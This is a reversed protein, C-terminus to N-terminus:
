PPNLGWLSIENGSLVGLLTGDPSFVLDDVNFGPMTTLLKDDILNWFLLRDDEDTSVLLNSNPTFKIKKIYAKSDTVKLSHLVSGDTMSWIIIGNGSAGALSQSDPSFTLTQIDTSLGALGALSIQGTDTRIVRAVDIVCQGNIKEDDKCAIYALRSGDPSIVPLSDLGILSSLLDGDKADWIQVAKEGFTILKQGDATFQVHLAYRDEVWKRDYKQLDWIRIENKEEAYKKTIISSSALSLGDPSFALSSIFGKNGTLVRSLTGTDMDWLEIHDGVRMALTKGDPSLVLLPSPLNREPKGGLDLPVSSAQIRMAGTVTDWLASGSILSRGDDSFFLDSTTLVCIPNLVRLKQINEVNETTIASLATEAV